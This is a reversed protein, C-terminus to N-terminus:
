AMEWERLVGGGCGCAFHFSGWSCSYGRSFFLGDEPSYDELLSSGGAGHSWHRSNLLCFALTLVIDLRYDQAFCFEGM